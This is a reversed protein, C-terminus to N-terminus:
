AVHMRQVEVQRRAVTKNKPIANKKEGRRMPEFHNHIDKKKKKKKTTTCCM